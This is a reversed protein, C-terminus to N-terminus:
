AARALQRLKEKDLADHALDCLRRVAAALSLVDAGDERAPDNLVIGHIAGGIAGIELLVNEVEALHDSRISEQAAM